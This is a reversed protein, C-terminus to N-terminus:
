EKRKEVTIDGFSKKELLSTQKTVGEYWQTFGAQDKVPEIILYISGACVRKPEQYGAIQPFYLSSSVGPYTSYECPLYGYDRLGKWWITYQYQYDLVFQVYSYVSFGSGASDKYVWDVASTQNHFIGQDQSMAVQQPYLGVFRITHLLLILFFLIRALAHRASGLGLLVVVFVLPYLGLAHWSLFEKTLSFWILALVGMLCTILFLCTFEKTLRKKIILYGIFICVGLLSLIGTMEQQPVITKGLEIGLGSVTHLLRQAYSTHGIVGGPERIARMVADTQSFNHTLEYIAHPLVFVSFVATALFVDWGGIVTKKWLFLCVLCFTLFVVPFFALESHIVAGMCAAAVLLWRRKGSFVNMLSIVFGFTLAPLLHPNLVFQSSFWFREMLGLGATILVARVTGTFRLLFRYTVYLVAANLLVLEVVSGWPNGDFIWYGPVLFYYWYPGVFLHEIAGTRPGNLFVTGHAVIERVHLADRGQDVTFYFNGNKTAFLHLFIFLILLIRM